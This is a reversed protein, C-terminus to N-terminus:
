GGFDTVIASPVGGSEAGGNRQKGAGAASSPAGGSNAVEGSTSVAETGATETGATATGGRAETGGRAGHEANACSVGACAAITPILLWLRGLVAPTFSLRMPATM